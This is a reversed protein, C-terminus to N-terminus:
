LIPSAIANTDLVFHYVICTNLLATSSAEIRQLASSCFSGKTWAAFIPCVLINKKSNCSNLEKRM